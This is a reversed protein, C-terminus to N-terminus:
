FGRKEMCCKHEEIFEDLESESMDFVKNERGQPTLRRMDDIKCDDKESGNPCNFILGLLWIKKHELSLELM